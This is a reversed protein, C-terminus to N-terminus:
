ASTHTKQALVAVRIVNENSNIEINKNMCLLRKPSKYKVTWKLATTTKHHALNDIHRAFRMKEAPEHYQREYCLRYFM